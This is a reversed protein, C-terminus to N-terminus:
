YKNKKLYSIIQEIGKECAKNSNIYKPKWGLQKIKNVNLQVHSVDGAWGRKSKGYIIKTKKLKLKELVKEAIFKVNTKKETGLNFYNMENNSKKITLFIGNILDDVLIYPKSQKGNGLVELKSSNLKLKRYFDFVVGHTIRPGLVNAFRFIWSRIGFNHCYASILAESALKSAGYLSIPLLPGQNELIPFKEAEGYIVNSSTFVIKKISNSRMSELVKYTGITGNNLDINTKSSSKIIDSNSALHFVIDSNKMSFKLNKLDLIDGNIFQFNKKKFNKKLFIKKGLSLNDYVIVQHNHKILRDVIHSGIFGAGGTVFCKM